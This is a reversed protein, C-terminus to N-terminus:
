ISISRWQSAIVRRFDRSEGSRESEEFAEFRTEFDAGTQLREVISVKEDTCWQGDATCSAFAAILVLWIVPVVWKTRRGAVFKALASMAPALDLATAISGMDMGLRVMAYAVDPQLADPLEIAELAGDTARVDSVYLFGADVAGQTLKGVIGAVNCTPEFYYRRVLEAGTAGAVFEDIGLREREKAEEFPITALM